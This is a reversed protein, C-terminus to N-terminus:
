YTAAEAFYVIIIIITVLQSIVVPRVVYPRVSSPLWPVDPGEPPGAIFSLVCTQM